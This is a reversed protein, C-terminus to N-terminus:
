KKRELEEAQSQAQQAQQTMGKATYAEALATELDPLDGTNEKEKLYAAIADDYMNLKAYSRGLEYQAGALKPNLQVAQKYEEIAAQHAEQAALVLGLGLHGAADNQAALQSFANKADDLRKESLLTMGLEFLADRNQPQLAVVRKYESEAQPFKQQSFYTQGLAFHIDPSNPQQRAIAELQALARDPDTTSLSEFAREMRYPAGRWQRVAFGSGAVALAVMALVAARRLVNNHDPALRAILAGLILGSLLGGIHCSNDINSSAFGWFLSFVCFFLLSALTSKISLDSFSFEGLYLSAILAGTLGFLAGSAGVSWVRPNWALSTLGGAVGTILYVGTYTWRGYLSECLTGFSWLCWMNVAIHWLNGHLFMYTLLRWWDGSLTLPGYNAGLRVSVQFPFDDT